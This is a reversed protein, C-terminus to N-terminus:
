AVGIIKVADFEDVRASASAHAKDAAAIDKVWAWIGWSRVPRHVIVAYRYGVPTMRTVIRGDPLEVKLTKTKM